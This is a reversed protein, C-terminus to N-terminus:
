SSVHKRQRSKLTDMNRHKRWKKWNEDRTGEITARKQKLAGNYEKGLDRKESGFEGVAPGPVDM